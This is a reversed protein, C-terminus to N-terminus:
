GPPGDASRKANGGETAVSELYQQFSADACETEALLTIRQETVGLLLHKNLFRVVLLHKRQGLPLQRELFLGDRSFAGPRPMGAFRGSRRMLWLGGGLVGVVLFMTGIAQLYGQWSIGTDPLSVGSGAAQRAPAPTESIGARAAPAQEDATARAPWAPVMSILCVALTAAFRLRSMASRAIPM